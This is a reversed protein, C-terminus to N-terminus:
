KKASQTCTKRGAPRVSRAFFGAGRRSLVFTTAPLADTVLCVEAGDPTRKVARDEDMGLDENNALSALAEPSALDAAPKKRLVRDLLADVADLEPYLPKKGEDVIRDPLIRFTWDLQRGVCAGCSMFSKFQDKVRITVKGPTVQDPHDDLMTIFPGALLPVVAVGDWRWFSIQGAATAGMEQAYIADIAFRLHGQADPQLAYISGHLPGCARRNDDKACDMRAHDTRWSKLIPFKGTDANRIDWVVIWHGDRKGALFVTGTEKWQAAFAYLAPALRVADNPAVNEKYDPHRRQLEAALSKNSIDPHSKLFAATWDETANWLADLAEVEAPTGRLGYGCLADCNTNLTKLAADFREEPTPTAAVAQAFLLLGALGAAIPTRM